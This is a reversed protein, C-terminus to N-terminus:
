LIVQAEEITHQAMLVILQLSKERQGPRDIRGKMQELLDGPTPRCIIADAEGQMNIGQAHTFRNVVIPGDGAVGWRRANPITELLLEAEPEFNAFLLPRRGKRTLRDAAAAYAQAMVGSEVYHERVAGELTTWLKRGDAEGTQLRHREYRALEGRYKNLAEVPLPVPELTLEWSRGTEPM